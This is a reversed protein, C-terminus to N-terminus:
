PCNQRYERKGWIFPRGVTRGGFAGPIAGPPWFMGTFVGTSGFVVGVGAMGVPTSLTLISSIRWEGRSVAEQSAGPDM